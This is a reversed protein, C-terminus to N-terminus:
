QRVITGVRTLFELNKQMSTQLRKRTFIILVPSGVCVVDSIAGHAGAIDIIMQFTFYGNCKM